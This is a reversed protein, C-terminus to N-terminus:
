YAAYTMKPKPKPVVVKSNRPIFVPRQPEKTPHTGAMPRGLNSFPSQQFPVASHRTPSRRNSKM